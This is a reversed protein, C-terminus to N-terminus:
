KHLFNCLINKNDKVKHFVINRTENTHRMFKQMTIPGAQKNSKTTPPYSDSLFVYFEHHFIYIQVLYSYFCM